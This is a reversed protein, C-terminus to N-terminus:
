HYASDMEDADVNKKVWTVANEMWPHHLFYYRNTRGLGKNVVQILQYKKLEKAYASITRSSVALETALTERGAFCKGFGGYYQSLRGYLLKAGQSIETRQMLWNPVFAGAWKKYPHILHRKRPAAKHIKFKM